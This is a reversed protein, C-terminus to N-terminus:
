DVLSQNHQELTSDSYDIGPAIEERVGIFQCDRANASEAFSMIEASSLLYSTPM